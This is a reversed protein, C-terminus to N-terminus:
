NLTPWACSRCPRGQLPSLPLLPPLPPLPPLRRQVPSSFCAAALALTKLLPTPSLARTAGINKKM